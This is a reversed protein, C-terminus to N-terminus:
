GKLSGAVTQHSSLVQEEYYSESYELEEQTSRILSSYSDDGHVSQARQPTVSRRETIISLILRKIECMLKKLIGLLSQSRQGYLEQGRYTTPVAQDKYREVLGRLQAADNQRRNLCMPTHTDLSLM